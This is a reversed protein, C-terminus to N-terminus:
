EKHKSLSGMRHPFLWCQKATCETVEKESYGVCELCFNRISLAKSAVEGTARRKKRVKKINIKGANKRKSNIRAEKAEKTTLWTNKSMDYAGLVINYQKWLLDVFFRANGRV